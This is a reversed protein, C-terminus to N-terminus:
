ESLKTSVTFKTFRVNGSTPGASLKFPIGSPITLGIKNTKNKLELIQGTGNNSEDMITLFFSDGEELSSVNISEFTVPVDFSAIWAEGSDFSTSSSQKSQSNIGFENKGTSISTLHKAHDKLASQQDTGIIDVTTLTFHVGQDELQMSEGLGAQDFFEKDTFSVVTKGWASVATCFAIQSILILSNINKKM